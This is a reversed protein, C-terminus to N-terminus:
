KIHSVAAECFNLVDQDSFTNRAMNFMVSVFRVNGQTYGKDNNIRDLSASSAKQKNSHTRLELEQGSFACRGKQSEWLEKLYQLDVDVEKRRTNLVKMYWKFGSYEDKRNGCHQTIDYDSRVSKIHEVNKKCKGGCSRSCYVRRGIRKNRTVEGKERLFSKGCTECKVEIKMGGGGVNNYM